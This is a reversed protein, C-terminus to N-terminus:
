RSAVAHSAKRRRQLVALGVLLSLATSPEPIPVLVLDTGSDALQLQFLQGNVFGDIVAGLTGLIPSTGEFLTYTGAPDFSLQPTFVFDNFELIGNGIRLSGGTTAVRDSAFPFDLDFLLAQSNAPTVGLTLDLEGGGTLNV